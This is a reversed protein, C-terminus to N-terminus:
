TSMVQKLWSYVEAVPPAYEKPPPHPGEELFGYRRDKMSEALASLGSQLTVNAENASSAGAM